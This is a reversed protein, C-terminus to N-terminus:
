MHDTIKRTWGSQIGEANRRACQGIRRHFTVSVNSGRRYCRVKKYKTPTLKGIGDGSNM